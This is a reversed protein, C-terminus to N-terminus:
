PIQIQAGITLKYPAALGNVAAINVPDVDGYQCAISYVTDGVRVTYQAPHTKIARSGPFTGGSAPIKLTLGTYFTQGNSLGNLSLLQDPDVNFRRAICYPFEGEKLAYTGPKTTQVTAQPVVVAPVPTPMATSAAEPTPGVPTLTPLVDSPAAPTGSQAQATQTGALQVVEMGSLTAQAVPMSGNTATAQPAAQPVARVCASLSLALVVLIILGFKKSM